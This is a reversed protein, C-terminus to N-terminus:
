PTSLACGGEMLQSRLARHARLLRLKVANATIQLRAAIESIHHDEYHRMIVVTRYDTPLRDIAARLISGVERGLLTQEQSPGGSVLAHRARQRREGAADREVMADLSEEPRRRLSRRRSLAANVVIRGLWTSLQSDGRFRQLNRAASLMADQVADQAAAPDRLVRRAAALFQRRQAVACTDLTDM